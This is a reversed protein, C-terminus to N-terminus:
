SVADTFDQISQLQQAETLETSSTVSASYIAIADVITEGGLLEESTVLTDSWTGSVSDWQLGSDIPRGMYIIGTVDKLTYGNYNPDLLLSATVDINDVVLVGEVINNSDLSAIKM